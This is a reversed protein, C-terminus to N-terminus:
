SASGTLFPPNQQPLTKSGAHGQQRCGANLNPSFVSSNEGVTNDVSDGYRLIHKDFLESKMCDLLFYDACTLCGLSIQLVRHKSNM